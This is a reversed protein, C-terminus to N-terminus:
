RAFHLVGGGSVSDVMGDYILTQVIMMIDEDRLDVQVVCPLDLPPALLGTLRM